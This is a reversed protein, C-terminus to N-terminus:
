IHLMDSVFHIFYIVFFLFVIMMAMMYPWCSFVGIFWIVVWNSSSVVFVFLFWSLLSTMM